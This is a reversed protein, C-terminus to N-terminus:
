SCSTSTPLRMRERLFRSGVRGFCIEAVICACATPKLAPTPQSIGEATLALRGRANWSSQSGTLLLNLNKQVAVRQGGVPVADAMKAMAGLSPAVNRPPRLSRARRSPSLM